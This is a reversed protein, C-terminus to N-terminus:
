ELEDSHQQRWGGGKRRGKNNRTRKRSKHVKKSSATRKEKAVESDRKGQEYKLQRFQRETLLYVPSKPLFATKPRWRGDAEGKDMPFYIPDGSLTHGGVAHSAKGRNSILVTPALVGSLAHQVDELNVGHEKKVHALFDDTIEYTDDVINVIKTV